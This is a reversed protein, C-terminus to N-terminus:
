VVLHLFNHNYTLSLYTLFLHHIQKSLPMPLVVKERVFSTLQILSFLFKFGCLRYSIM